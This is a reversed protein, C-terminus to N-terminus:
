KFLLSLNSYSYFTVAREQSSIVNREELEHKLRINEDRLDYIEGNMEILVEKLSEFDFRKLSNIKADFADEEDSNAEVKRELERLSEQRKYEANEAKLLETTKKMTKTKKKVIQKKITKTKNTKKM